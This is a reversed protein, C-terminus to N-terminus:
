STDLPALTERYNWPMWQEPRQSLAAANKQLATLYDFPNAGVLGCTHILSMFTDGVQAGKATKYFLANKRHLIAKKLAQECINNDLPAGANRLFLTLEPWHKKMYTIAQGLGSNPEVLHLTFQETLWDQLAKMLPESHIQHFRLREEPSSRDERCRADNRYVEALTELVFRCEEPFHPAVEVYKRRAHAICNAVITKLPGVLNRSLADCMQIPPSLDAARHALVKALNEGAHSRGTFFLAVSKGERTSVIGSTFVGTRESREAEGPEAFAESAAGEKLHALITMTTDDNYVVEGQAAQRILEKFAPKVRAATKAAIEWQTSAPLPIGLSEQRGALRYFPVGSGYKLLAIMSACGSDYKETGVGEPAPATFVELCLNCRLKALEYVTAALPAQGQVRVLVGPKAAAYLKGRRCEPCLAGSEFSPHEVPIRTAGAYALASNRGHGPHPPTADAAPSPPVDPQVAAVVAKLVELTKETSAGFLIQRLRHITTTKNEVLQLLYVLTDFVAKLRRYEADSLAGRAHELIAELEQRDVPEIAPKM